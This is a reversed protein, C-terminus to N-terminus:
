GAQADIVRVLSLMTETHPVALGVERAAAVVKGSIADIETR